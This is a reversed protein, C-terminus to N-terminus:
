RDAHFHGDLDLRDDILRNALAYPHHRPHVLQIRQRPNELNLVKVAHNDEHTGANGRSLQRLFQGGPTIGRRWQVAVNRLILAFCVTSLSLVPM